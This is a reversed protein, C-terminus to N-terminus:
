CSVYEHRLDELLAKAEKLDQTEFGETFWSYIEELLHRSEDVKGASLLMRSIAVSARLEFVKFSHTRAMQLAVHFCQEAGPRDPQDQLLLLKGKIRHLDIESIVEGHSRTKRIGLEVLEMAEETEGIEGLAEALSGLYFSQLIEAGTARFLALWRRMEDVGGSQDGERFRAWGRVFTSAALWFGHGQETSYNISAEAKERAQVADRRYMSEMGGYC